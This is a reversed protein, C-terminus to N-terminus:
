YTGEGAFGLFDGFSQIFITSDQENCKPIWTSSDGM